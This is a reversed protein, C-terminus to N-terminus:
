CTSSICLSPSKSPICQLLVLFFYVLGCLVTSLMLLRICWIHWREIAVRLYFYGIAFKLLCSAIVYFLECLYWYQTPDSILHNLPSTSQRFTRDKCRQRELGMSATGDRTDRRYDSM